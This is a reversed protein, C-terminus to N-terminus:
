SGLERAAELRLQNVEEGEEFPPEQSQGEEHMPVVIECHSAASVGPGAAAYSM